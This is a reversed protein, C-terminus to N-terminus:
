KQRDFEQWFEEATKGDNSYSLFKLGKLNRLVKSDRADKPLILRELNKCGALPQIDTLKSCDELILEKIPTEALVSLDRVGTRSLNLRQLPMARLPSLDAVARCGTVSLERLKMGELIALGPIKIEDLVLGTIFAPQVELFRVVLYYPLGRFNAAYTGGAAATFRGRFERQAFLERLPAYKPDTEILKRLAKAASPHGGGFREAMAAAEALRGQKQFAKRMESIEAEGAEHNEGIAAILRTTLALNEAASKLDSNRDLAAQYSEVADDWRLLSQLINGRINHYTADNPVQKLASEIRDLAVDFERRRIAGQAQEAFASAAGQLDEMAQALQDRSARANDREHKLSLFFWVLAVIFVTAFAAILAVNGKHRGAWLIIQRGMGAREAVPAFGGQWATVDRQLEAVNAYRGDPEYSMAKMVVAALGEPVRMGPLHALPFPEGEGSEPVVESRSPKAPANFSGPRPFKGDVIQAVLEGFEGGPYPARLTLIEYLIEGLVYIDSRSDIRDLEGRAAEPSIYPPTGVVLGNLTEFARLDPPPLQRTEAPPDDEIGQAIKKALGWDMVLVEGYEGIMVNSPKLDRHVVGMSHAYAMGDCIKQFVALLAALPYSRRMEEDGQRIGRLVLDLTTGKVFKMTYFVEGQEDIALEYLPVINPHQLQGTLQAEDVFRLVNERSYQAATRMAKMAVRRRIHLDRAEHVVGMGGGGITGLVKYKRGELLARVPALGLDPDWLSEQLMTRAAPKLRILLRAGGIEVQQDPRVRTPLSIRIGDIFVGNVSGLDELLLEYGQFTLRAHHRSVGDVNLDVQVGPGRGVMYEGHTISYKAICLQGSYVFVEAEIKSLAEGDATAESAQPENDM